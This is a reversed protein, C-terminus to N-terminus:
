LHCCWRTTPQCVLEFVGPKAVTWQILETMAPRDLGCMSLDLQSLWPWVGGALSRITSADLTTSSLCVTDLMKWDPTVLVAMNCADLHTGCVTLRRLISFQPQRLQLLATSLQQSHHLLEEQSQQPRVMLVAAWVLKSSLRVHYKSSGFLRAVQLLWGGYEQQLKPPGGKTGMVVVADLSPWDNRKLTAIHSKKSM